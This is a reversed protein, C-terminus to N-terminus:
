ALQVPNQVAENRIMPKERLNHPRDFGTGEASFSSGIALVSPHKIESSAQNEKIGSTWSNDRYRANPKCEISAPLRAHATGATLSIYITSTFALLQFIKM